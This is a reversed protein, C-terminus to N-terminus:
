WTHKLWITLTCYSCFSCDVTYKVSVRENRDNSWLQMCWNPEASLCIAAGSATSTTSNALYFMKKITASGTVMSVTCDSHLQSACRTKLTQRIWKEQVWTWRPDSYVALLLSQLSLPSCRQLIQIQVKASPFSQHHKSQKWVVSPAKIHILRWFGECM